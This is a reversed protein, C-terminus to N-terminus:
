SDLTMVHTSFFDLVASAIERDAISFLIMEVKILGDEGEGYLEKAIQRSLACYQSYHREQLFTQKSINRSFVSRGNSRNSSIDSHLNTKLEEQQNCDFLLIIKYDLLELVSNRGPPMPFYPRNKTTFLLWNLSYIVRADYIAFRKPYKFALYKSWSAIRDFAVKKDALVAEEADKLCAKLRDDNAGRSIGGWEVIIWKAIRFTNNRNDEAILEGMENPIHKRLMLTKKFNSQGSDKIDQIWKSNSVLVQLKDLNAIPWLFLEELQADESYEKLQEVLQAIRM